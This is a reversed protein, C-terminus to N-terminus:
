SVRSFAPSRGACAYASSYGESSLPPSRWRTPMARASASSGDNRRASSGALMSSTLMRALMRSRKSSRWASNPSVATYMLERSLIKSPKEPLVLTVNEFESGQGKHVTLAFATSHAPLRSPSVSFLGDDTSFHVKGAEARTGDGNGNGDGGSKWVGLDGNSLGLAYDNTNIIIPRGEYWTSYPSVLGQRQLMQEMRRNITEVGWPGRRHAALIKFTGLVELMKKPGGASRCFELQKKIRHFLTEEFLRYSSVSIAEVDPYQPDQLVDWARKGLGRNVAVALRAIGSEDGFRYSKQLLVIHDTLPKTESATYREPLEVGAKGLTQRLAESVRNQGNEGCINGLVSGAEVSALQDKDGLLLLRTGARLAEMLRNMLAQDIMSAEDVVICDHPLPNDRNHRFQATHRRAGLLQHITVAETPIAEKIAEDTHLSAKAELVSAQLRAAAKGTPAALAVSPLSDNARGQELLLALMRVVTTTKGTGPGGSIVTFMNHVAAVAAVKQWDIAEGNKDSDSDDDEGRSGGDANDGDKNGAGRARHGDGGDTNGREADDADGTGNGKGFLRALGDALLADNVAPASAAAKALIHRVLNQEFTWLKHLYLRNTDDVILEEFFISMNERVASNFIDNIFLNFDEVASSDAQELVNHFTNSSFWCAAFAFSADFYM